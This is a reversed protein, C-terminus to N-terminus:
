GVDAFVPEKLRFYWAGGIFIAVASAASMGILDWPMPTTGLLSARFGEIVGVMPNLAYILRYEDPVYSVPYVVPAAYMLLKIAFSMFHKVDRYQIAMASLLMGLGAASLMLLVLLLPVAAAWPTPAIGYWLMMAILLMFAISFDVLRALVASLPLILRPFYVKQLMNANTVLSATAASVAEAYYTWAVLGAFSFIPYPIGDSSIRALNGFVVTFVIMSMVPQAVAWGIGLVSQAYKGKIDRWVLFLFLESYQWLEGLGFDFANRGKPEIVVTAPFHRM